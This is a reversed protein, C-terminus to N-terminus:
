LFVGPATASQESLEVLWRAVRESASSDLTQRLKRVYYDAYLPCAGTFVDVLEGSVLYQDIFPRRGLM